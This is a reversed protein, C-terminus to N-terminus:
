DHMSNLSGSWIFGLILFGIRIFYIMKNWIKICTVNCLKLKNLIQKKKITNINIIFNINVIYIEVPSSFTPKIQLRIESFEM